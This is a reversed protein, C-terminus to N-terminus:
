VMTSTELGVNNTIIVLDWYILPFSILPIMSPLLYFMLRARSVKFGLWVLESYSWCGCPNSMHLFIHGDDWGLNWGTILMLYILWLHTVLKTIIGASARLSGWFSSVVAFRIFIECTISFIIQLMFVATVGLYKNHLM